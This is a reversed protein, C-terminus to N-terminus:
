KRLINHKETFSEIDSFSDANAKIWDIPKEWWKFAKLFEIYEDSFRKKIHQAPIGGVITYPEVDKTILAGAALIAGDGIKVGGLVMVGSGIWVDNGIIVVYKNEYDAYKKEQFLQQKVFTVGCQKEISYFAPHTSVFASVPHDGFIVRVGSGISCFRGVSADINCNEGIYSGFGLKGTFETNPGIRNNGEFTSSKAIRAKPYVYVCKHRNHINFYLRKIMSKLETIM